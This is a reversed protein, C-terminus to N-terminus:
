GDASPMVRTLVCNSMTNAGTPNNLHAATYRTTPRAQPPFVTDNGQSWNTRGLPSSVNSCIWATPCQNPSVGGLTDFSETITALPAFPSVAAPADPTGVPATRAGTQAAAMMPLALVIAGALLSTTIKLTM